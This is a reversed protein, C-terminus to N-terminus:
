SSSVMTATPSRSRPNNWRAAPATLDKEVVERGEFDDDTFIVVDPGDVDGVQQGFAVDPRVVLELGLLGRWEARATM